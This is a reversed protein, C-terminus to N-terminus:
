ELATAPQDVLIAEIDTYDITTTGEFGLDSRAGKDVNMIWMAHDSTDNRVFSANFSRSM